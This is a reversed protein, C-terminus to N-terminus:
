NLPNVSLDIQKALALLETLRKKSETGAKLRCLLEKKLKKKEAGEPASSLAEVLQEDTLALIEKKKM